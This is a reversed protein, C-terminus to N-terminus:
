LDGLIDTSGIPDTSDGVRDARALFDDLEIVGNAAARLESALAPTSSAVEVRIGLRRLRKSLEAMDGDGTGLVIIDPRIVMGLEMCDLVLLTDVNAKIRGNPLRKARKAVVQLGSHRLFDHWRAVSDGNEVPLSCYVYTDICRRGERPNALFSALKVFDLKRGAAQAQAALNAQDFFQLVKFQEM